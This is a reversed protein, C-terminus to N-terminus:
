DADNKIRESEEFVRNISLHYDGESIPSALLLIPAKLGGQYKPQGSFTPQFQFMPFIQLFVFVFSVSVAAGLRGNSRVNTALSLSAWIAAASLLWQLGNVLILGAAGSGTNFAVVAAVWKVLGSLSAYLAWIGIHSLFKAQHRFVKGALAWLFALAILVTLEGVLLHFIARSNVEAEAALYNFAISLGISVFVLLPWVLWRGFSNLVSESAHTRLAPEVDYSDDFVSVVTQGLMLKDSQQLVGSVLKKNQSKIQVGNLSDLDLVRWGNACRELKVHHPSVFPDGVIVDNDFARGISISDSESRLRELLQGGKSRVEIIVAM